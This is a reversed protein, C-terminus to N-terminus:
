ICRVISAWFLVIVKLPLPNDIKDRGFVARRRDRQCSRNSNCKGNRGRSGM